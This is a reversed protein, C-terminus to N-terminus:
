HPPTRHRMRPQDHGCDEDLPAGLRLDGAGVPQRARPHVLQDEAILGVAVRSELRARSSRAGVGGCVGARDLVLDDGQASLEDIVAQIGARRRDGRVQVAAVAGGRRGRRDPPDKDAAAEDCWSGLFARSRRQDPEFGVLGVFAPLGVDGVPQEGVAGDLDEVDDIVM